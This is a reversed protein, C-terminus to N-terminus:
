RSKLTFLGLEPPSCIRIPDDGSIGRSVHMLMKGIQFTGSAYFVGYKSPAVLPGIIPLAIQGGHTHGAFMLDFERETAWNVQDPSHSLLMRLDPREVPPEPLKEVDFYWPMENGTIDITSGNIVLRIWKGSAQTLGVDNLRTRLDLEDKIRRDHNGLVYYVGHKARLRGLTEPLWALCDAEDVLDGTIITIDPEFKNAEEVIRQFYEIGIQGTFHLDSLQCIKLGDLSEPIDLAFTMRQLTLKQIQNFPIKGLKQTINGHLLPTSIEKQLDLWQKKSSAVAAPLRCVYKRYVWRLVFFFSLALCLYAYISSGPVFFVSEFAISRRLIAVLAIWLLPLGVALIILKESSKRTPRPWATAHVQNFVVCWLGLHGIIVMMWKILDM